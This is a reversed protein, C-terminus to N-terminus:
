LKLSRELDDYGMLGLKMDETAFLVREGFVQASKIFDNALEINIMMNIM